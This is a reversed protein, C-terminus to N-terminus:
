IEGKEMRKLTREIALSPVREGREMESVRVQGYEPGSAYIEQGFEAQTQDRTRRLQKIKEPTWSTSRTQSM